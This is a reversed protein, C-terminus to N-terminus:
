IVAKFIDYYQEYSKLGYYRIDRVVDAQCNIAKGRFKDTFEDYEAIVSLLEPHEMFYIYWLCKYFYTLYNPKLNIGNIVIYDVKKGKGCVKGDWSRKCNQYHREITDEVGKITVRAYLASFRKDGASSCELVRSM